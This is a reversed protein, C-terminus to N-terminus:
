IIKTEKIIDYQLHLYSHKLIDCKKLKMCKIHRLDKQAHLSEGDILSATNNGGIMCPAVVVSLKDILGKRLLEANLGGGSQITLRAVGYKIKLQEFLDIFDIKKSYPIIELNDAGKIGYAPHQKNTTVLYLKEVWKTLYEIGNKNLHPKSDVIVFSCPIKVPAGKRTNVGIKAMVRGTNLSFADTTKEIAYYQFLGEKLGVIRSFDKDVDLTDRDGTSIKGDVSTLMFLTTIPRNKM